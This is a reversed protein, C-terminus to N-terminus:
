SSVKFRLEFITREPESSLLSVSSNNNRMLQRCLSLGIGKGAKRTTYFPIFIQNQEQTPIGKGNDEFHVLSSNNKQNIQISIKPNETQKLAEKANLFLNIFVQEIQERDANIRQEERIDIKIDIGKLDNKLFFEMEHLMESILFWNKNAARIHSVERYSETFQILHQSRKAISAAAAELDKSLGNAKIDEHITNALSSISTISNMIEHTLVRILKLWADMEISGKVEDMSQIFILDYNSNGKSGVKYLQLEKGDDLRFTSSTEYNLKTAFHKLDANLSTGGIFDSAISNIYTVKEGGELVLVGIPMREILYAMWSNSTTEEEKLKKLESLTHNLGNQLGQFSGKGQTPFVLSYDQYKIAFLFKELQRNTTNIIYFCQFLIALAISALVIQTFVYEAQGFVSSLGSLVGLLLAFLLFLKFQFHKM